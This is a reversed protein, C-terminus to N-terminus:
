AAKRKNIKMYSDFVFQQCVKIFAVNHHFWATQFATFGNCDRADLQAGAKLLLEIVKLDSHAAAYHLPSFLLQDECGNPDAGYKLLLFVISAQNNIVADILPSILNKNM